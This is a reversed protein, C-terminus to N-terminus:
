NVVDGRLQRFRKRAENVYLSDKYNLIIQEYCLKAKEIEKLDYQYIEALKFIADDALLDYSYSSRVEELLVVAENINQKKLAIEAKIFLLDDTLQHAPFLTTISDLTVVAENLKNQFLLLDANAFLIMPEVISDLGLNSTIFVSLKLADNAVLETTAAKLVDLLGQAYSFDGRYYALKANKFRAEEGLPEDKM